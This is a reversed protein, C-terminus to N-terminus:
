CPDILSAGRRDDRGKWSWSCSGRIRSGPLGCTPKKKRFCFAFQFVFTIDASQHSIEEVQLAWKGLKDRLLIFGYPSELLVFGDGGKIISQQILQWPMPLTAVPAM